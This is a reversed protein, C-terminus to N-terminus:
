DNQDKKQGKNQSFKREFRTAFGIAAISGLITLPEPVPTVSVNDLRWFSPDQQFGFQINTSNSSATFSFSYPTLGMPDANIALFVTNDEILSQFQNPSGGDNALLYSFTYEQGSVTNITQSIYGLSGIPGFSAENNGNVFTFGTNGSQNWGSFNGTEFDGNTILNFAQAPVTALFSLASTGIIVFFNTIVPFQQM